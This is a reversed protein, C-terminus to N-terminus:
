KKLTAWRKDGIVAASVDIVAKCRTPYVHTVRLETAIGEIRGTM